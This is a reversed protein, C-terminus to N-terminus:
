GHLPPQWLKGTASVDGIYIHGATASDTPSYCEGLSFASTPQIGARSAIGGAQRQLPLERAGERKQWETRQVAGAGAEPQSHIARM